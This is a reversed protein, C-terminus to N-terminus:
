VTSSAQGLDLGGVVLHRLVGRRLLLDERRLHGGCALVVGLLLLDVRLELLRDVVFFVSSSLGSTSAVLAAVASTAFFFFRM